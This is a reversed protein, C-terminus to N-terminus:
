SQLPELVFIEAALDPDTLNASMFAQVNQGTHEEVLAVLDERMTEQFTRRLGLVEEERGAAVLSREALTMTDELMVMVTRDHITTRAKSPGRGTHDSFLRVVADSILATAPAQGPGEKRPPGSSAFM